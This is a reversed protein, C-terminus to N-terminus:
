DKQFETMNVWYRMPMHGRRLAPNIRGEVAATNYYSRWLTRFCQEEPTRPPFRISDAQFFERRGGRQHLFGMRHTKEYIMFNETNFRECFHPAILPLVTNNPTIVAGLFEGYDAFRLFEVHYHAENKLYLLAKNLVDVDHNTSLRTVKPGTRYGLLIFRLLRMEKEELCTLFGRQVMGWAERSIRGTISRELRAPLEPRTEIDKVPFLTAQPDDPALIAAPLSKDYFSQAVCCLFGQFSGDYRYATSGGHM